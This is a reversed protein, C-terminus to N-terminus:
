TTRQPKTLGVNHSLLWVTMNDSSAHEPSFITNILTGAFVAFFTPFFLQYTLLARPFLCSPIAAQVLVVTCLGPCSAPM